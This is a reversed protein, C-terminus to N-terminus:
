GTEEVLSAIMTSFGNLSKFAEMSLLEDPIEIALREELNVIFTIFTLSNIDIDNLDLDDDNIEIIVGLNELEEKIIRKIEEIKNNM